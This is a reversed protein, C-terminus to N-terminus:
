KQEAKAGNVRKPGDKATGAGVWWWYWWGLCTKRGWISTQFDLFRFTKVENKRTKEEMVMSTVIYQVNQPTHCARDSKGHHNALMLFFYFGFFFFFLKNKFKAQKVTNKKLFCL